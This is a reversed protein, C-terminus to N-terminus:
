QWVCAGEEQVEGCVEPPNEAVRVRKKVAMWKTKEASITCGIGALGKALLDLNQQLRERSTALIALDDAYGVIKMEVNAGAGERKLTIGRMRTQFQGAHTGEVRVQVEDEYLAKLEAICGDGFGYQSLSEWLVSREISDYAKVIDIFAIYVTSNARRAEDMVHKVVATAM